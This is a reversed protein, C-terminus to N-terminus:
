ENSAKNTSPTGGRVMVEHELADALRKAEVDRRDPVGDVLMEDLAHSISRLQEEIAYAAHSLFWTLILLGVFTLVGLAIM